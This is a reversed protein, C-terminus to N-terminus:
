YRFSGKIKREISEYIAQLQTLAYADHPDEPERDPQEFAKISTKLLLLADVSEGTKKNKHVKFNARKAEIREIEEECQKIKHRMSTIDQENSELYRDAYFVAPIKVDLSKAGADSQTLKVILVNSIDRVFASGENSFMHDDLVDYLTMPEGPTTHVVTADLWFSNELFGNANVTCHLLSSADYGPTQHHVASEWGILFKHFDPKNYDDILEAAAKIFGDLNCLAELSGYARDTRDLFAVVRQVEHILELEPNITSRSGIEAPGSPTIATGTWWNGDHGYDPLLNEPSLFANRVLPISHLITFLASLYDGSPLPKIFAPGGEERKRQNIEVDPIFEHASSGALTIAWKSNDYFSKTAPGFHPGSNGIVGSEQGIVEVGIILILGRM